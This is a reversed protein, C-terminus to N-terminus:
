SETAIYFRVASRFFNARQLNSVSGCSAATEGADVLRSAVHKTSFWDSFLTAQQAEFAM